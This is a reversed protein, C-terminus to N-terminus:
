LAKKMESKVKRQIALIDFSLNRGLVASACFVGGFCAGAFGCTCIDQGTLFLGDIDTEARLEIHANPAFRERGHDLGYIEGTSSGIYYKNTLPTGVEFYEVRGDLQPFVKV